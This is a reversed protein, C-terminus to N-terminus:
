GGMRRVVIALVKKATRILVLEAPEGELRGISKQVKAPDLEVGRTKVSELRLGSSRLFSRVLGVDYKLCELVEFGVWWPSTMREDSTLYGPVLGIGALGFGALAHARIAAPDAQYLFRLPAEVAAPDGSAPLRLGSEVHVAWRGSDGGFWVVAERCERGFSVFELGGGLGELFPDPDLPSLKLGAFSLGRFRAAVAQVDPSYSEFRVRRGSSRRAPDCWACDAEFLLGDALVVDGSLGLSALNARACDAREPDLEYGVVPGRAALALLDGGIGATLDAVLSGSPFRSAHYAAVCEHSAQELAERVFFMESARSFKARAQARLSWQTFAWRVEEAGFEAALRSVNKPTGTVGQTASLAALFRPSFVDM